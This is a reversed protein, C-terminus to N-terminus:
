CCYCNNAYSFAYVMSTPAICISGKTIINGSDSGSCQKAFTSFNHSSVVDKPGVTKAQITPGNAYNQLQFRDDNNSPYQVLLVAPQNGTNEFGYSLTEGCTTFLVESEITNNSDVLYLNAGNVTVTVPVSHTNTGALENTTIQLTDNTVGALTTGLVPAAVEVVINGSTGPAISAPVSVVSFSKLNSVAASIVLQATGNNAIAINQQGSAAGGCTVTMSPGTTPVGAIPGTGTATLAVAAPPTGCQVVNTGVTVSGNAGGLATPSFTANGKAQGNNAAATSTGVFAAGFGAGGPTLTLPAALNGSNTVTFPLSGSSNAQVQGFGTTPMSVALVAGQATEHVTLSIPQSNPASTTVTLTDSIADLATSSIAPIPKPTVPVTAQAGAAVSGTPTPITFPSSAGLALQASYTIGFSYGNTIDLGKTVGTKGCPVPGFDIPDPGATVPATTGTGTMPISTVSTGCIAGTTTIPASASLAGATTPKFRAAAGALTAGSAVTQAAPAGTYAIAFEPDTAAGVTVGVSANGTNTITLPIDQAQVSLQVQGFGASAPSLTLTGGRATVQLPVTVTAFGPVDTTLTLAGSITAGATTTAPVASASLTISGKQGPAVTGQASGVIAFPTGTGVSASWTIAVPGSNTFAYTQNAPATACDTAGFDVTSTPFQGTPPGDPAADGPPAAEVAGDADTVAADGDGSGADTTADHAAAGDHPGTEPVVFTGDTSEGADGPPPTSSGFDCGAALGAVPAVSCLFLLASRRM